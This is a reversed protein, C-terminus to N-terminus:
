TGGFHHTNIWEEAAPLYPPWPLGEREAEQKAQAVWEEDLDDLTMQYGTFQSPEFTEDACNFYAEIDPRGQQRIDIPDMKKM